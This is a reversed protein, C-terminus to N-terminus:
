KSFVKSKFCVNTKDITVKFCKKRSMCVNTYAKLVKHYAEDRICSINVLPGFLEIIRCYHLLLHHKSTLHKKTLKMYLTHHEFVLYEFIKGIKRPLSKSRVIAMIDHLLLYLHWYQDDESVLDGVFLGFYKVFNIM